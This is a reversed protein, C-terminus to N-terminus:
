SWEDDEGEQLKFRGRSCSTAGVAIRGGSSEVQHSGREPGGGDRTTPHQARSLTTATSFGRRASGGFAHAERAERVQDEARAVQKKVRVVHQLCLDLRERAHMRAQKLAVKLSEPDPDDEGLLRLAAELRGVRAAADAAKQQPHVPKPFEAKASNIAEVLATKVVSEERGLAKLAAQLRDVKSQAKPAPKSQSPAKKQSSSAASLNRKGDGKEETVPWKVSPPRRGRIVQTWGKPVEIQTWGRRVM